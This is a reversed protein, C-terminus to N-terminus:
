ERRLSRRTQLRVGRNTLTQKQQDHEAPLLERSDRLLNSEGRFLQFEFLM